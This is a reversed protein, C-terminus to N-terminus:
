IVGLLPKGRRDGSEIFARAAILTYLLPSGDPPPELRAATAKARAAKGDAVDLSVKLYDTMPGLVAPYQGLLARAGQVDKAAVLCDFREVLVRPTIGGAVMADESAKAADESKGQYRLLRALRLAYTPTSSRTGWKGTIKAALDLNGTDLAADVGVLDGWPVGPVAMQTIAAPTPYAKGMAVGMAVSLAQAVHSGRPLAAVASELESPDLSEYAAAARVVAVEPSAADLEQIAKKAEDIRGGLLAVRSALSRARTYLASYSLARLVAKRALEEDGLDIAVQGIWAAMAPTATVRLGKDLSALADPIKESRAAIKADVVYPIALLQAPLKERDADPVRTSEPLDEPADGVAWALGQLARAMPGDGLRKVAEDLVPKGTEIGLELTVLASHFVRAVVLNQDLDFAQQYRGVARVDGARELMAGATLQYFPESKAKEDWKPLIAAAGALDGEALFSAIKGFAVKSDDIELTKARALASEIGRPEGPLMLASLVRNELWLIAARQSRSDLDFVRSLTEDTKKLDDIKGTPLLKEVEAELRRAEAMKAERVHRAYAYGGYGGGAALVMAVIFLWQGRTKERPPTVWAPAAGGGREYIGVRSLHDLITEAAPNPSDDVSADRREDARAPRPKTQPDFSAVPPAPARPAAAPSGNRPSASFAPAPPPESRGSSPLSALPSAITELEARGFRGTEIEGESVLEDRFAPLPAAPPPPLPPPLSAGLKPPPPVSPPPPPLKPAAGRPEPAPAAPAPPRSDPVFTPPPISTKKPITRDIEDAVARMGVRTQLAVYVTARDHWMRTDSEAGGIQLARALVKEARAADGRRLLVEGLYRYPSASSQNVKGAVVLAAQAEQLLGADLYMRGVALMVQGDEKHWAEATSGVERILDEQKSNGLFACLALTTGSDPNERWRALLEDLASM